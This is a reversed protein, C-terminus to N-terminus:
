KMISAAGIVAKLDEDTFRIGAGVFGFPGPKRGVGDVGGTLYLNPTFNFNGYAKIRADGSPESRRENDFADSLHFAEVTASLKDGFMYADAAVGPYSEFLGFRLGIPSWRKAIQVNFRLADRDDPTETVEKVVTSGDVATSTTSTTSTVKRAGLSDTVGLLYYQDPRTRLRFNFHNGMAAIQNNPEVDRYEGKYDVEIQLRRAPALLEQVGKLAQRIDNATDDRSVIQGLTGEGREVKDVILQVKAMSANINQTTVDLADVMREFKNQNKGSVMKKLEATFVQVDKVALNAAKITDEVSASNNAMLNSFHTASDRLSQIAKAINYRQSSMLDRADGTIKEVNHLINQLSSQGDASGFVVALSRSVTQLDRAISGVLSMLSNFDSAETRKPILSGDPLTKTSYNNRVLEIFVDGLIGRSRLELFSGEPIQVDSRINFNVKAGSPLVDISTVEGVQVGSVRVQTRVGVGGVNELQTYYEIKKAGFPGGELAILMVAFVAIGAVTFLGVKLETSLAM